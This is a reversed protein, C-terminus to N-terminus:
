SRVNAAFLSQKVVSFQRKQQSICKSKQLLKNINLNSVENEKQSQMEGEM